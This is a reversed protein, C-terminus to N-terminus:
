PLVQWVEVVRNKSFDSKSFRDTEGMSFSELSVEKGVTSRIWAGVEKARGYSLRHNLADDGRTDAYGITILTGEKGAEQLKSILAQQHSKPVGTQGTAFPIRYLFRSKGDASLNGYLQEIVAGDTAKIAQLKRAFNQVGESLAPAPNTGEAKPVFSFAKKTAEGVNNAAGEVANGAKNALNAASDKINGAADGISGAAGEVTDGAKGALNAAGDKLNGAADGISGAAGEVANGAKGALNAAGDKLNGATDGISGAAREVANGAKDALNAAGDKINGAADGISGAAGEVADGAKGALDAAGDKLSGAADGVSNAAGEVADGAKGALSAAGDKLEGAADGVGKAADGAKDAMSGAGNKLSSGAEGVKDLLSTEGTKESDEKSGSCMKFGLFALLGLLLIPILKGLGSGGGNGEPSSTSTRIPEIKPSADASPGGSLSAFGLQNTFESGLAGQIHEKQSSLLSALGSANLGSSAVQKGLIGTLIPTLLGMLSGAKGSGLGPIQELIGSLPGLKDGLLGGLLDQGKSINESQDGDFFDSVNDLIGSDSKQLSEFVEAAGAVTSAKEGFVGLLSPFVKGIVGKATSEDIGIRSAIQSIVKDTLYKKSLEIINQHM